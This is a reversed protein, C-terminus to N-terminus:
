FELISDSDVIIKAKGTKRIKVSETFDQIQYIFPFRAKVAWTSNLEDFTCEGEARM